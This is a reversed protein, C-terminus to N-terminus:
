SYVDKRHRVRVVLVLLAKDTVQYVVRYDGSRVRYLDDEGQLKRAGPPRPNNALAGIVPAIREQINRPLKKFDREAAPKLAVAYVTAESFRMRM